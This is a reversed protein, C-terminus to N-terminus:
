WSSPWPIPMMRPIILFGLTYGTFRDTCLLISDHGYVPDVPKPVPDVAIVEFPRHGVTIPSSIYGPKSTSRKRSVCVSCEAHVSHIVRKM